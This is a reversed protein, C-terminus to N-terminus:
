SIISHISREEQLNYCKLLLFFNEGLSINGKLHTVFNKPQMIIGKRSDVDEIRYNKHLVDWICLYEGKPICSEGVVNGKYPLELSYLFFRIRSNITLIGLTYDPMYSIRRITVEIM